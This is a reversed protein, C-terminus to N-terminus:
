KPTKTSTKLHGLIGTTRHCAYAFFIELELDGLMPVSGPFSLDVCGDSRPAASAFGASKQIHKKNFTTGRKEQQKSQTGCGVALPKELLTKRNTPPDCLFYRVEGQMKTFQSSRSVICYQTSGSQIHFLLEIEDLYKCYPAHM